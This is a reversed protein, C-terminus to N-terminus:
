KFAKGNIIITFGIHRPYTSLYPLKRDNSTYNTYILYHQSGSFTGRNQKLHTKM